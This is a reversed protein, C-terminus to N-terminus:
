RPRYQSLQYNKWIFKNSPSFSNINNTIDQEREYLEIDTGKFFAAEYSFTSASSGIIKKTNSLLMMEYLPQFFEQKKNEPTECQDAFIFTNITSKQNNKFFTLVEKNDSCILITENKFMGIRSLFSNFSTNFNFDSKSRDILNDTYRIHVGICSALDYKQNFLDVSNSLWSPFAVKGYFLIKEKIFEERTMNGPIINYIMSSLGFDENTNFYANPKLRGEYILNHTAGNFFTDSYDGIDRYRMKKYKDCEYRCIDGFLETIVAEEKPWIGGNHSMDILIDYNYYKAIIACSSINRLCNGIFAEPCIYLM